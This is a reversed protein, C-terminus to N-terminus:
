SNAITNNKLEYEEYIKGAVELYRELFNRNFVDPLLLTVMANTELISPNENRKYRGLLWWLLAISNQVNNRGGPLDWVKRGIQDCELDTLNESFDLAQQVYKNFKDLRPDGVKSLYIQICKAGWLINLSLNQRQLKFAIPCAWFM